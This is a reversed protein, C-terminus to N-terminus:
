LVADRNASGHLVRIIEVGTPRPLYYIIHNLFRASVLCCRLNLLREHPLDILGSSLPNEAILRFREHLEVRFQAASEPRQAHIYAIHDTVDAQAEKTLFIEIEAAM